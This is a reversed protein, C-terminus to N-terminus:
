APELYPEWLDIHIHDPTASGWLEKASFRVTYLWHPDDGRGHASSDPFVHTGHLTIIEGVRGRVYRPLRTHGTPNINRARVRTGIPFGPLSDSPRSAPGGQALVAPVIDATLVRKVPRPPLLMRGGAIEDATVLGREIMLKTLGALWIEYYSSSWYTLAPLSERAHRLTDINCSGTAGMALNLALVRREWEAHFTPENAEPMVPGFGTQGGMDQPGNM